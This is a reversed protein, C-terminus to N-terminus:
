KKRDKIYAKARKEQEASTVYEAEMVFKGIAADFTEDRNLYKMTFSGSMEVPLTVGSTCSAYDFSTDPRMEPYHGIVGPGRVEELHGGTLIKWHRSLLRCSSTSAVNKDMTMKIQYSFHFKNQLRQKSILESLAPVFVTRVQIRVGSTIEDSGSPTFLSIGSEGVEYRGSEISEAHNQLFTTFSQAMPFYGPFPSDFDYEQFVENPIQGSSGNLALFYYDNPLSIAFPLSSCRKKRFEQYLKAIKSLELLYFSAVYNYFQYGGLLGFEGSIEQGDHIRYSCRVDLPLKCGIIQEIHDIEAESLGKALPIPLKEFVDWASRIPAYCSLYKGFNKYYEAYLGKWPKGAPKTNVCFHKSIWKKYLHDCPVRSFAKFSIQCRAIEKPTLFSFVISLVEVPLLEM